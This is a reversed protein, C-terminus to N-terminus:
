VWKDQAWQAKPHGFAKIELGCVEFSPSGTSPPLAMSEEEPLLAQSPLEPLLLSQSTQTCFQLGLKRTIFNQVM